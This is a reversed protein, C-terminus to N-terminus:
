LRIRDLLTRLQSRHAQNHRIAIRKRAEALEDRDLWIGGCGGCVDLAVDEVHSPRCPAQCRPCAMTAPASRDLESALRALEDDHTVRRLEGDDLWMGACGPCRDITIDAILFPVLANGDRPCALAPLLDPRLATSM